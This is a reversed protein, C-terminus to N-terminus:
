SVPSPDATAHRAVAATMLLQILGLELLSTAPRYTVHGPLPDPRTKSTSGPWPQPPLEPWPEPRPEPPRQPPRNGPPVTPRGAPRGSHPGPPAGAVLPPTRVTYHHGTPTTVELRDGDSTHTWAPNEKTYNCRACLGSANAASTPGGDRYPTVHDVHKVPADCYPTRCTDDRVLILQRLAGSFTRRKSDMAVLQGSTPETYLRRIFVEAQTDTIVRRAVEAPLPGQGVLWAPVESGGTRDLEAQGQEAQNRGPQNREAQGGVPRDTSPPATGTSSEATRDQGAPNRHEADAEEAEDTEPGGWLSRDTMVLHIEVPLDEAQTQGTIREVLLDAMVQDQTREARDGTGVTTAASKKLAGLCGVAQAMPLLATLYAMAGPAPRVSVRRERVSRNMQEVASAQDLRQAHARAVGALKKVGLVELRGAMLEDVQRRAQVPLWATERCMITAKWESIAGRTLAALTHPMEECLARALGLDRSGTNPSERRALAVEAALGRGRDRVPVGQEAEAQTRLGHLAATTRAQAAACAAKLEELARIRDVAEAESAPTPLSSLMSVCSLLDAAGGDERVSDEFM